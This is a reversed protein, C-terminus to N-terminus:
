AVRVTQDTVDKARLIAVVNAFHQLPDKAQPLVEAEHVRHDPEASFRHMAGCPCSTLSTKSSLQM